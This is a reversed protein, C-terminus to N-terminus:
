HAFFVTAHEGQLRIDLRLGGNERRPIMTEREAPELGDLLADEFGNLYIRTWQHRLLGRAFVYLELHGADRPVVFSFRGNQDTGSRGWRRGAPDWAEIMGDEIADGQGDLLHGSLEIGDPDLVHQDDRICGIAFYPGVTQSPTRM